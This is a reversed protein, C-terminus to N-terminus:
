PDIMVLDFGLNWMAVLDTIRNERQNVDNLHPKFSGAPNKYELPVKIKM